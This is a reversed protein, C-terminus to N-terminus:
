WVSETALRKVGEVDFVGCAPFGAWSMPTGVAAKVAAAAVAEVSIPPVLFLASAPLPSLPKLMEGLQGNLLDEQLRTLASPLRPTLFAFPPRFLSLRGSVDTWANQRVAAARCRRYFCSRRCCSSIFSSRVLPKGIIGLPLQTPGAPTPVIRDGYILGPRLVVGREEFGNM